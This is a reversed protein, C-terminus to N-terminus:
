LRGEGELGGGPQFHQWTFFSCLLLVALATICVSIDRISGPSKKIFVSSVDYTTLSWAGVRAPQRHLRARGSSVYHIRGPHAVLCGECIGMWKALLQSLM